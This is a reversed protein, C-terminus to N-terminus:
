TLRDVHRVTGFGAVPVYEGQNMGSTFTNCKQGDVGDSSQKKETM